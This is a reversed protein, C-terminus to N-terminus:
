LREGRARLVVVPRGRHQEEHHPTLRREHPELPFLPLQDAIGFLPLPEPGEARLRELLQEDLVATV